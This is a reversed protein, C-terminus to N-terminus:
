ARLGARREDVRRGNAFRLAARSVEITLWLRVAPTMARHAAIREPDNWTTTATKPPREPTVAVIIVSAGSPPGAM